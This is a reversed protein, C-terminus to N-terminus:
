IKSDLRDLVDDLDAIYDPHFTDTDILLPPYFEAALGSHFLAVGLRFGRELGLSAPSAPLSFQVTALLSLFLQRCLRRGSNLSSDVTGSDVASIDGVSRDSWNQFVTSKMM